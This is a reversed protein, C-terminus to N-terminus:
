TEGTPARLRIVAVSSGTGAVSGRVSNSHLVGTMVAAQELNVGTTEAAPGLCTLTDDLGQFNTTSEGMTVSLVDGVHSADGSSLQFSAETELLLQTNEEMSRQNVLTMNLTVPTAARIVDVDGGVKAIIIQTGATGDTPATASDGLQYMQKRLTTMETSDKAMGFMARSESNKRTSEYGPMLLEIGAMTGTAMIGADTTGALTMNRALEEGARYCQKVANLKVQQTDVCALADRQRSLQATTEGIRNELEQEDHALSHTSIRVVALERRQRKVPNTLHNYRAQLDEATRKASELVEARACTLRGISRFQTTLAKAEQWTKELTRGTM